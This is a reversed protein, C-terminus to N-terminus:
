KPPQVAFVNKLSAYVRILTVLRGPNEVSAPLQMAFKDKENEVDFHQTMNLLAGILKVRASPEDDISAETCLVFNVSGTRIRRFLFYYSLFVYVCMRAGDHVWVDDTGSVALKEIVDRKDHAITIMLKFVEMIFDVKTKDKKLLLDDFYDITKMHATADFTELLRVRADRPMTATDHKSDLFYAELADATAYFDDRLAVDHTDAFKKTFKGDYVVGTHKTEASKTTNNGM